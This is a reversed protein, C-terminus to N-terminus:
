GIGGYSGAGVRGGEIGLDASVDGVPLENTYGAVYLDRGLDITARNDMATLVPVAVIPATQWEIRGHSFHNSHYLSVDTPVVTLPAPILGDAVDVLRVSRGEM